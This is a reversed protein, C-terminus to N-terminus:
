ETPSPSAFTEVTNRQIANRILRYILRRDLSLRAPTVTYQYVPTTTPKHQNTDAALQKRRLMCLIEILSAVSKRPHLPTPTPTSPRKLIRFCWLVAYM